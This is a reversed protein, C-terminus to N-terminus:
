RIGPRGEAHGGDMFRRQARVRERSLSAGDEADKTWGEEPRTWVM